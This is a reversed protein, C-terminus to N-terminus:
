KKLEAGIKGEMSVTSTFRRGLAMAMDINMIWKNPSKQDGSIM